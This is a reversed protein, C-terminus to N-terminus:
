GGSVLNDAESLFTVFRGDNSLALVSSSGNGENGASGLSVRQTSGTKLDRLFVDQVGNNDGSVLNGASSDFTV